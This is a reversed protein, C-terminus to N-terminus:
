QELLWVNVLEYLDKINVQGDCNLDSGNCWLPTTCIDLWNQSLIAYDCLNQKGDNNIDGLFNTRFQLVGGRRWSGGVKFWGEFFYDTAPQLNSLTYFFHNDSVTVNTIGTNNCQETLGWTFVRSQVSGGGTGIIEANLTASAATINAAPLTRIEPPAVSVPIQIEDGIKGNPNYMVNDIYITGNSNSGFIQISDITFEGPSIQGDGNSWGQWQSNDDLNWEYYRWNGDNVLDLLNGRETQGANDIALSIKMGTNTTKAWFGVYGTAVRATNQEPSASSGSVFRVFWGGQPYESVTSVSPDDYIVIRECWQNSGIDVSDATSTGLIGQTSGSHTPSYSFTNEEGNEFDNYVFVSPKSPAIDAFVALHNGVIRETGDSPSNVIRVEPDALVMTSSGGGDLNVADVVGFGLLVEGVEMTTMGLSLGSQRGDVVFLVLKGENTIGIATRPHLATAISDSSQFIQSNRLITPMGGVANYISVNTPKHFLGSGTGGPYLPEIFSAINDQSINIAQEWGTSFISYVTGNSAAYGLVDTTAWQDAPAYYFFNANIAMQANCSELFGSTTQCNTEGPLSPGNSPTARFSIGQEQLDIILIHMSLLRPVTRTRHIYTVGEFPHGIEDAAYTRGAMYSLLIFVIIHKLIPKRNM